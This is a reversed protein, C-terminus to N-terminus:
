AFIIMTELRSLHSDTQLQPDNDLLSHSILYLPHRCVCSHLSRMMFLSPSNGCKM